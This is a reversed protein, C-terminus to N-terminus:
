IVIIREVMYRDVIKKVIKRWEQDFHYEVRLLIIM